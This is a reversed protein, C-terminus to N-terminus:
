ELFFSFGLLCYFLSFRFTAIWRRDKLLSLTDFFQKNVKFYEAFSLGDIGLPAETMEGNLSSKIIAEKFSEENSSGSSLQESSSESEDDENWDLAKKADKELFNQIKGNEEIKITKAQKEADM